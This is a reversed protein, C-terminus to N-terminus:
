ISVLQEIVLRRREQELCVRLLGCAQGPHEPLFKVSGPYKEGAQFNSKSNSDNCNQQKSGDTTRVYKSWRDKPSFCLKSAVNAM